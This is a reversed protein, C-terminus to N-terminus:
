IVSFNAYQFNEDNSAAAALMRNGPAEGEFTMLNNARRPIGPGRLDARIDGCRVVERDRRIEGDDSGLRRKDGAHYILEPCLAPGNDTGRLFSRAQLCALDVGFFEHAADADGCRSEGADLGGFFAQRREVLKLVRDDYFGIAQGGALADDDGLVAAL